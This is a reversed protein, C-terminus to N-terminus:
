CMVVIKTPIIMDDFTCRDPDDEEISPTYNRINQFMITIVNTEIDIFFRITSSDIIKQQVIFRSILDVVCVPNNDTKTHLDPYIPIHFNKVSPFSEV